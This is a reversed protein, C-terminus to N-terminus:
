SVNRKILHFTANPLHLGQIRCDARVRRAAEGMYDIQYALFHNLLDCQNCPITHLPIYDFSESSYDTRYTLHESLESAFTDTNSEHTM